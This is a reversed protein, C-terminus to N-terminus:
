EKSANQQNSPNQAKKVPMRLRVETGQGPATVLRATGGHRDMRGLISDRVGHRDEAVEDMEFGRGRDRVFVEAAEESVEAYLDIRPAGSHKAANVLAERTAAVLAADVADSDGVCVVEVPVGTNDEVEAAVEKLAAAVTDAGAPADDYLWSRLDREQARALRAVTAPDHASKQILALTQLVSDHLHSAMDAREQTRVREGREESLDSALRFLLPALVVALAIVAFLTAAGVGLVVKLDGTGAAFAMVGLVVLGLGALVRVYSSWSGNGFIARAPTVEQDQDWWRERQSEDAQWWLVAIGACVLLAPWVVGLNGWWGGLLALVGFLVAGIAVVPGADSWTLRRGPRKGTRSASELGPASREFHADMPMTMWLGAYLMLGLGACFSLVLFAIRVHTTDLGLHEALGAAVGGILGDEGSRYVRRM